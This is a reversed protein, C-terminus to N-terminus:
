QTWSIQGENGIIITSSESINDTLTITTATTSASLQDFYIDTAGTMTMIQSINQAVEITANTPATPNYATGQFVVFQTVFGSGNIVIHVGHPQGETCGSGLCVNNIAQSRAHQLAGILVDRESRFSSNRYTEMSVFLGLSALITILGITVLIEM